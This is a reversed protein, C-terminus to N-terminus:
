QVRLQLISYLPVHSHRAREWRGARAGQSVLISHLTEDIM